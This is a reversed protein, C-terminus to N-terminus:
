LSESLSIPHVSLFLLLPVFILHFHCVQSKATGPDGLLFVNIDGRIRHKQGVEKAEGGFLSLVLALKIDEHGFISPAISNRVKEAVGPERSLARIAVEDEATLLVSALVDDKKAIYNAEIITAFM